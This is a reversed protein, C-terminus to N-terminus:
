AQWADGVGVIFGGPALSMKYLDMLMLSSDQIEDALILDYKALPLGLYVATHVMETFDITKSPKMYFDYAKKLLRRHVPDANIQYYKIVEEVAEENDPRVMNVKCYKILDTMTRRLEYIYARDDDEADDYSFQPENLHEFMAETRFYDNIKLQGAPCHFKKTAGYALAHATKIDLNPPLKGDIAFSIRAEEELAKSFTVYLIRLGPFMTALIKIIFTKGTGACAEVISDKKKTPITERILEQEDTLARLKPM